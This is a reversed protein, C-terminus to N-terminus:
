SNTSSITVTLTAIDVSADATIPNMVNMYFDTIEQWKGNGKVDLKFEHYQATQAGALNKEITAKYTYGNVQGGDTVPTYTLTMEDAKASREQGNLTVTKEAIVATLYVPKDSYNTVIVMFSQDSALSSGDGVPVYKLENVDWEMSTGSIDLSMTQYDIDVAYRSQINNATAKIVINTNPTVDDMTEEGDQYSYPTDVRQGHTGVVHDLNGYQGGAAFTTTSLAFVMMIALILSLAKKM